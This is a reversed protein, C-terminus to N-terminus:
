SRVEVPDGKKLRLKKCASGQNVAIELLDHSGIVALASGPSVASYSQRLGGISRGKVRVQLVGRSRKLRLIRDAPLNSVANGFRDLGIVQGKVYGLGSVLPPLPLKKFTRVLPGLRSPSLGKSLRGAVPALIDRGHFTTSIAPRFYRRNTVARARPSRVGAVVRSLVGNDPGLFIHERHELCLIRRKSGVGPDVVVLHITGKPFFSWSWALLWGARDVDGPPILHCLDVLVVSPNIGLIVGKMVGLYEDELGFDTLLTVIM